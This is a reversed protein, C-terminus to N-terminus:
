WFIGEIKEKIEIITDLVFAGMLTLLTITLTAIVILSCIVIFGVIFKEAM